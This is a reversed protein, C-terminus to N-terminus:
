WIVVREKEVRLAPANAPCAFAEAFQSMNAIPGKVRYQAPSHPDTQIQKLEAEPRIKARWSQAYSLFYRQGAPFGDIAAPPAGNFSRQLGLYSITLGGLDAINEGLTLRGNVRVSNPGLYGGYQKVLAEARANYNDNDKKTWWEKLNGVEDFQRGNDDFHHTIEHGIVMGIAGYNTADDVSADFFPPQLIGAPFVIENYDGAYANVIHPSMGWQNRDVPQGLKAAWWDNDFAKARMWNGLYERNNIPVPSLDKWKDPYGILLAMADLKKLAAQKTEPQMWDLNQLRDRLAAKINKTMAMARAKAEPTFSKEVFLQGLGEALPADGYRGTLDDLIREPRPRQQERGELLKGFFAFNADEFKAPLKPAAGALVRLRLYSQWNAVSETKALRALEKAFLPQAVNLTTPAGMKQAAIYTGWDLGPAKARLEALSMKNYIAKPDRQQVATMSAKALSEEMKYAAKARKAAVADSDGALSFLTTAFKLYAVRIEDSNKGKRFYYDRDPLGRGGQEVQVLYQTRDKADSVVSLLAGASYGVRSLEGLLAPIESRNKLEAIRKLTPAIPTLGAAEIAATDLGSAYYAAVKQIAPNKVKDPSAAAEEIAAKLVKENREQIESFTGWGSRDAPITAKKQWGENAYTYFDDCPKTSTSLSEKNVALVNASGVLVLTGLTMVVRQRLKTSKMQLRKPTHKPTHALKM